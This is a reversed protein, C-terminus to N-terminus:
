QVLSANIDMNFFEIYVCSSDGPTCTCLVVLLHEMNLLIVLYQTYRSRMCLAPVLRYPYGHYKMRFISLMYGFVLVVLALGVIPIVALPSPLILIYVRVYKFM